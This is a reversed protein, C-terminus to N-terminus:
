MNKLLSMRMYNSLSLGESHSKELLSEHEKETLYVMVRKNKTESIKPRGGKNKTTLKTDIKNKDSSILNNIDFEM